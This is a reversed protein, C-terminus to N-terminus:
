KKAAKEVDRWVRLLNGGWIKVIQQETYGRKVLEVTVNFAESHDNFGPVGGGGDFDTGVGVHDIGAVKVAYDIHDVFDKLTASQFPYKADIEKLREQYTARRKDAEAQQEPTLPTPPTGGRAQGGQGGAGRGGGGGRGGMGLETRLAQIAATREPPEAKLYAALAVIQIVGGNKALAKLQDDDLNRGNPSLAKCGSHSEIIPAKSTAIADWFSKASAHSLDVMMGLRNMEVVVKKGLESLGNHMPEAPGSSDALQNHSGHVLTMYRTGLDYFTKLNALDDGMPYGNEVGVLIARKGTKAIREVDAPSRGLDCLEPHMKTLRNIAELGAIAQDHAPKFGTATLDPRQGVYAALFVGDLGGAKMKPLDCKRSTPGGPDLKETAYTAGGIDVHTDITIAKEHITKAKALLAADPGAQRAGLGVGLILSLALITAFVASKTPM